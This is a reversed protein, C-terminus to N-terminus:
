GEHRDRDAVRRRRARGGGACALGRGARCPPLPLVDLRQAREDAAVRGPAELQDVLVHLVERAVRQEDVLGAAGDAEGAPGVALLAAHREQLPQRNWEASAKV